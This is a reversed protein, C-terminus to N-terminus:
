PNFVKFRYHAGLDIDRTLDITLFVEQGIREIVVKGYKGEKNLHYTIRRTNGEQLSGETSTVPFSQIHNGQIWDIRDEPYIKFTSSYNREENTRLNRLSEAQWSEPTAQPWASFTVLLTSLLHALRLM